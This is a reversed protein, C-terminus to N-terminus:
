AKVPKERFPFTVTRFPWASAMWGKVANFLVPDLGRDFESKRVWLFVEAEADTFRPPFIYVCGLCRKEEPDVVTYTFSSLMKFETQHWGLDALDEEPTMTPSPWVDGFVEPSIQKQLHDVSSMVAEYDQAVDTITLPRLIFDAHELRLPVEFTDSVLPMM